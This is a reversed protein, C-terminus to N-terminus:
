DLQLESMLGKDKLSNYISWIEWFPENIIEAIELLTHRGDAYAILNMMSQVRARTDKTSTTPYLNYKGLKPECLTNIKPICDNEIIEIAHRLASFAGFLGKESILSLDDLSTHYEPYEDYKSRMISAIPLDVGPSCYQREDSGRQLYSYVKHNKDVHRLVHKAVRDSVTEGNRSPLFSYCREDGVCTINYGAKTYKKLHGLHRSIYVISGITEPVFVVRYTYKRAALSQLWNVLAVTVCPGSLENNAMSPHCIYTSLLVENKTQGPLVIDAYSMSGNHLESDIYVRYMGERMADRQSQTLCFGWKKAYYSTIYPIANPMDPLSYLYKQLQELNLLKDVPVSYGLLHLNNDAFDIVREGDEYEVWAEKVNWELPVEWDFAQTGSPVEHMVLEPIYEKLIALTKRTGDGTISRNLPFLREALAYMANGDHFMSEVVTPLVSSMVIM